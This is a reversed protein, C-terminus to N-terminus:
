YQGALERPTLVPHLRAVMSLPLWFRLPPNFQELHLADSRRGILKKVMACVVEESGDRIQAVVYDGLSAQRKTTIYIPDGDDWRPSMSQGVVTLSYAEMDGAIGPHRLVRDIVDTMEIITMEVSVVTGGDKVDLNAGLATGYVPVDRPLRDMTAPPDEGPRVSSPTRGMLFDVTTSLTDALAQLREASPMRGRRMDRLLDPKGTADISVERDTLRKQAALESARAAVEEATAKM